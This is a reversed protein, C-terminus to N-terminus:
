REEEMKLRLEMEAISALFDAQGRCSLVNEDKKVAKKLESLAIGIPNEPRYKTFVVAGNETDAFIEFPDGESINLTRRIEKPVILRGLDDIRRIIGTAKM